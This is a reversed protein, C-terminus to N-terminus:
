IFLDWDEFLNFSEDFGGIDKLISKQLISCHLPIYNEFLLVEYSFDWSRFVGKNSEHLVNGELDYERQLIVSDSYVGAYHIANIVFASMVVDVHEPYLEDDDDLFGVYEGRVNEIGVNGAHARGTNQEIRVYNLSVDGLTSKIEDIDLDCGGDNVLVIEIPRYTQEAISRLARALLKPRDKTRVIISVLSNQSM